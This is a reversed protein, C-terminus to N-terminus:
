FSASFYGRVTVTWTDAERNKALYMNSALAVLGSDYSDVFAQNFIELLPHFPRAKETVIDTGFRYRPGKLYGESFEFQRFGKVKMGQAM